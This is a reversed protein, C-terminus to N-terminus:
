CCPFSCRTQSGVMLATDPLLTLILFIGTEVTGPRVGVGDGWGSRTLSGEELVFGPMSITYVGEM